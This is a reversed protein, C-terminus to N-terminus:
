GREKVLASIKKFEPDTSTKLLQFLVTEASTSIAGARVANDLGTALDSERRSCVGDRVLQVEFGNELLGLVTQYVCVHAEMGTVIVQNRSLGKLRDIFEPEGCCGFSTKAIARDEGPGALEPVTHGLGRPYQETVVVPLGLIEAGRRLLRITEIVPRARAPDMAPILKEQVDIILLLSQHRHAWYRDLGLNM